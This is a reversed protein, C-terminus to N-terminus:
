TEEGGEGDPGYHSTSEKSEDLDDRRSRKNYTGRVELLEAHGPPFVYNQVFWLTEYTLRRGVVARGHEKGFQCFDDPHIINAKTEATTLSRSKLWGLDVGFLAAIVIHVISSGRRSM